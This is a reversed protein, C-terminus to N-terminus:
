NGVAYTTHPFIINECADTQGPPHTRHPPPRDPPLHGPTPPRGPPHETWPTEWKESFPVGTRM